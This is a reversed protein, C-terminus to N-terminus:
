ASRIRWSSAVKAEKCPERVKCLCASFGVEPSDEGPDLFDQASSISSDMEFGGSCDPLLDPCLGSRLVRGGTGWSRGLAGGAGVLEPGLLPRFGGAGVVLLYSGTRAM